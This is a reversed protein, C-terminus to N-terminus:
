TYKYLWALASILLILRGNGAESHVVWLPSSLWLSLTIGARWAQFIAIVAM